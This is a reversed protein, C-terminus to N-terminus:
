RLIQTTIRGKIKPSWSLIQSNIANLNQIGASLTDSETNEPIRCKFQISLIADCMMWIFKFGWDRFELTELESAESVYTESAKSELTESADFQTRPRPDKRRPPEPGSPEWTKVKRPKSKPRHAIPSSLPQNMVWCNGRLKRTQLIISIGM